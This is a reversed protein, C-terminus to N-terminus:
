SQESGLRGCGVLLQQDLVCYETLQKNYVLAIEHGRGEQNYFSVVRSEFGLNIAQEKYWHASHSCVGGEEKIVTWNINKVDGIKTDYFLNYNSLNYKWWKSQEAVLEKSLQLTSIEPNLASSNSLPTNLYHAVFANNATWGIGIGCGLLIMLLFFLGIGKIM